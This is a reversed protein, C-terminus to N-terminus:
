FYILAQRHHDQLGISGMGISTGNLSDRRTINRAFLPKKMLQEAVLTDTPPKEGAM